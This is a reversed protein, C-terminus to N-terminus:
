EPKVCSASGRMTCLNYALQKSWFKLAEDANYWDNWLESIVKGGVRRDVAAALMQGTGADTIKMEATIEGVGSQKGTVGYKVWSVVMGIPLFTSLTNRVDKSDDADVIAMQIRMAGPEPASVVTYGKSLEQKLYVYANNALTQFNAIAEKDLEGDKRVLVPDIVVKTYNGSKLAPNVYRQLAQGEGGEKLIAPNFLTAGKVEVSRAQYSAGCGSLMATMAAVALSAGLLTIKKMTGERRENNMGFELLEL